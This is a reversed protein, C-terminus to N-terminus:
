KRVHFVDRFIEQLFIIFLIPAKYFNLMLLSSQEMAVNWIADQKETEYFIQSGVGSIEETELNICNLLFDM